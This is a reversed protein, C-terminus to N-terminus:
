GSAPCEIAALQRLVEANNNTSLTQPLLLQKDHTETQGPSKFHSRQLKAVCFTWQTIWRSAPGSGPEPSVGMCLGPGSFGWLSACPRIFLCTAKWKEPRRSFLLMFSYLCPPFIFILGEFRPRQGRQRKSNIEPKKREGHVRKIICICRRIFITQSAPAVTKVPVLHSFVPPPPRHPPSLIDNIFCLSVSYRLFTSSIHFVFTKGM